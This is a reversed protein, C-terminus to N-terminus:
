SRFRFTKRRMAPKGCLAHLVGVQYATRAGGGMLVLAAQPRPRRAHVGLCDLSSSLVTDISM